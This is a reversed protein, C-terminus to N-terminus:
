EKNNKVMEYDRVLKHTLVHAFALADCGGTKIKGWKIGGENTCCHREGSTPKKMKMM